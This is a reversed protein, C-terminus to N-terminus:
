WKEVNTSGCNSYSKVMDATKTMCRLGDSKLLLDYNNPQKPLDKSDLAREVKIAWGLGKVSQSTATEEDDSKIITLPKGASADVLTLLYKANGSTSGVPLSLVGTTNDYDPYIFTPDFGKYSFNKAKFRELESAIRLAEQKAISLDKREMYSAYSPYAIAALVAIVVVVIMLEILTFGNIKKM